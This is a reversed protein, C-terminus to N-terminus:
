TMRGNLYRDPSVGDIECVCVLNDKTFQSLVDRINVDNELMKNDISYRKDFLISSGAKSDSTSEILHYQGKNKIVFQIIDNNILYDSVTELPLQIIQKDYTRNRKEMERYDSLLLMRAITLCIRLVLYLVVFALVMGFVLDYKEDEFGVGIICRVFVGAIISFLYILLETRLQAYTKNELDKEVDVDFLKM